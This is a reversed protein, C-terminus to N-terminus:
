WTVLLGSFVLLGSSDGSVEGDLLLSALNLAAPSLRTVGASGTTTTSTDSSSTAETSAEEFFILSVTPPVLM